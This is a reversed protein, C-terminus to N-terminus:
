TWGGGWIHTQALVCKEAHQEVVLTPKQEEEGSSPSACNRNTTHTLKNKAELKSAQMEIKESRLKQCTSMNKNERGIHDSNLILAWNRDKIRVHKCGRQRHELKKRISSLKGM